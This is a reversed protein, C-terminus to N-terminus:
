CTRNKQEAGVAWRGGRVTRSELMVSVATEILRELKQRKQNDADGTCTTPQM